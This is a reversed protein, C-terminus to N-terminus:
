CLKVWDLFLASRGEAQAKAQYRTSVWDAPATKWDLCSKAMWEFKGFALLQELMWAGYGEHDTALRLLGGEKLKSHFLALGEQSIIRRKHHRAKPWPDPFLVFLREISADPLKELVLRADGDYLRVNALKAKDIAALLKAMGNVYPECGIFHIDPHRHAQEVLHEGAGFGIEFWLRHNEGAITPSLPSADDHLTILLKPLLTEMLSGHGARLKRGRRRGFSVLHKPQIFTM